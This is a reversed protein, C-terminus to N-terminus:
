SLNGPYPRNQPVRQDLGSVAVKAHLVILKTEVDGARGVDGDHHLGGCVEAIGNPGRQRVHREGVAKEM